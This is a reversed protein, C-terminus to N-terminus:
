PPPNSILYPLGKNITSSEAWIKTSFGKPLGAIFQTTKLGKIGVDNAINGAGQSKSKIRSTSRDWYNKSLAGHTDDNGVFGGLVDGQGGSVKGKSYSTSAPLGALGILGGVDSGTGGGTDTVAGTAYSNTISTGSGVQNHGVLGGVESGGGASTVSGTAFSLTILGGTDNFGALGGAADGVGGTVSGTSYCNSITASSVGAL